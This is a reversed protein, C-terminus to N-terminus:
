RAKGDCIEALFELRKRRKGIDTAAGAVAEAVDRPLPGSRFREDVVALTRVLSPPLSEPARRNLASGLGYMRNYFYAFLTFFHMVRTFSGQSIRSGYAEDIADMVRRFRRSLEEKQPFREDNDRYYRGLLAQSKGSLGQRMNVVVDSVFEVEDMRSIKDSPFVEWRVWRELQEYALDYMTSKFEGFWEANRLEQHNLRVGTANLRAFMQLVDRDEVETPMTYVSFRYGLIHNRVERTLDSFQRDAIDKNHEKKVVVDDSGSDYDRLLVPDVFAFVTRLRQQGDVIERVVTKKELDIRERIFILPVPLGRAITDIFFSKAGAKWVSRRQFPPNLVLVNERQWTIFDAVRFQNPTIEFRRM